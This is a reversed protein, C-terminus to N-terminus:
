YKNYNVSTYIIQSIAYETEVYVKIKDPIM